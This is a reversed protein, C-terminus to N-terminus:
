FLFKRMRLIESQSEEYNYTRITNNCDWTGMGFSKRSPETWTGFSYVAFGFFSAVEDYSTYWLPVSKLTDSGAKKKGFVVEWAEIRSYIGVQLGEDKFAEVLSELYSIRDEQALRWLSLDYLVELWVTGNFDSPLAAAVSASIETPIITSNVTLLADVSLIGADKAISSLSPFDKNVTGAQDAIALVVKRVNKGVLCKASESSIVSGMDAVMNASAVAIFLAFLCFKNM